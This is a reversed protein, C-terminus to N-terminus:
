NLLNLLEKYQDETFFHGQPQKQSSSTTERSIMNAYTRSGQGQQKKKSKLDPPYCIIKYYNEKLHEKYRYYKCIIGVKKAKYGQNQGAMMTSPEKNVEVVGLEQQSETHIVLSYAQNVILVITKLLIQSVQSYSENFGVLFQLLRLNM